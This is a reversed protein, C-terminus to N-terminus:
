SALLVNGSRITMGPGDIESSEVGDARKRLPAVYGLILDEVIEAGNFTFMAQFEALIETAIVDAIVIEEIIRRRDVEAVRAIAQLIKGIPQGIM